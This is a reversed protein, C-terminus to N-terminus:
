GEGKLNFVACLEESCVPIFTFWDDENGNSLYCLQELERRLLTEGREVAIGGALLQGEEPLTLIRVALLDGSELGLQEELVEATLSVSNEPLLSVDRVRSEMASVSLELLSIALFASFVTKQIFKKM